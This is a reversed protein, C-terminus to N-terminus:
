ILSDLENLDQARIRPLTIFHAVQSLTTTSELLLSVRRSSETTAAGELAQVWLPILAITYYVKYLLLWEAAKLCGHNASGLNRPV